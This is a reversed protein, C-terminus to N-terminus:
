QTQAQRHEHLELKKSCLDREWMWEAKLAGVMACGRQKQGGIISGSGHMEWVRRSIM